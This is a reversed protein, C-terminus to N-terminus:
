PSGWKRNAGEIKKRHEEKIKDWEEEINFGLSLDEDNNEAFSSIEEMEGKRNRYDTILWEEGFKVRAITIGSEPSTFRIHDYGDSTDRDVEIEFEAMDDIFNVLEHSRERLDEPLYAALDDVDAHEPELDLLRRLTDDFSEGDQKEAELAEHTLESVKLNVRKVM